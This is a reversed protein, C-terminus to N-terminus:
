MEEKVIKVYKTNNMFPKFPIGRGEYFKGFFEVYQLRISHVFSGLASILFNFVHAAVVIVIFAVVGIISKGPMTAITNFVQAIVSGALCLALLRAYSLIDSLYRTIGYLNWLGLLKNIGKGIFVPLILIGAVGIISMWKGIEGGGAFVMDGTILLGLGIILTYWLFSDNIADLVRGERIHSYAKVGLAVFIHLVGCLCAFILMTMADEVPDIWLPTISINRGFFHEATVPILNGFFSGFVIGWIFTSVGCYGLQKIFKYIGGELKGSKVAAFSLVALLIGYGMDAFM